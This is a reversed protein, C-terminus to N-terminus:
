SWILREWQERSIQNDFSQSQIKERFQRLLDPNELVTRLEEEIGEASNKCVLGCGTLGILKASSTTETTLVPLGLAKAEDFVM